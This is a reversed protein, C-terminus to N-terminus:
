FLFFKTEPDEWAEPFDADMRSGFERPPVPISSSKKQVFKTIEARNLTELPVLNIAASLKQGGRELKMTIQRSLHHVFFQSRFDIVQLLLLKRFYRKNQRSYIFQVHINKKKKFKTLFQHKM